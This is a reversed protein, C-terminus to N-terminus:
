PEGVIADAYLQGIKQELFEIRTRAKILMEAAELSLQTPGMSCFSEHADVAGCECSHRLRDVINLKM